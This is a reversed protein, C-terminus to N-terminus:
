DSASVTGDKKMERLTEDVADCFMGLSQDVGVVFHYPLFRDSLILMGAKGYLILFLENACVADVFGLRLAEVAEQYSAYVDVTATMGHLDLYEELKNIDENDASESEVLSGQVVVIVGGNLDDVRDTQEENVLFAAADSYYSSTYYISSSSGKVSAGLAIDIDSNTLYADKTESSVMVYNVLIGDEFIRNIIEDAIDKELGEFTGTEQDYTCLDGIDGRLGINIVGRGAINDIAELKQAREKSASSILSIVAIIVIVALVPAIIRIHKQQIRILRRKKFRM